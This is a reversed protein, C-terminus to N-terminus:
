PFDLMHGAPARLGGFPDFRGQRPARLTLVPARHRGARRARGRRPVRAAPRSERCRRAHLGGPEPQAPFVAGRVHEDAQVPQIRVDHGAAGRQQGAVVPRASVCLRAGRCERCQDSIQRVVRIGAFRYRHRGVEGVLLRWVRDGKRDGLFRRGHDHSRDDDSGREQAM